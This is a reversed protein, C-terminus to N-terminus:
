HYECITQILDGAKELQEAEFARYQAPTFVEGQNLSLLESAPTRNHHTYAKFFREALELVLHSENEPAAKLALHYIKKGLESLETDTMAKIAATELMRPLHTRYPELLSIVQERAEANYLLHTLLIGPVACWVKSQADLFRVEFFGRARVEPFLTSLHTEWDEATPYWGNFGKEAWEKFRVFRGNFVLEGQVNPLRMCGANLAFDLYQNVSCPEYRDALFGPQFGTRSPDLRQWIISRFSHAGAARGAVFPSNAFVATMIPSLLNAALWRRRATEPDGTDLNVQLSTSLRMMQRGYPSLSGFYRDMNIYRPKDLQLGVEEVAYWPNLGSHFFWIDYKKLACRLTEMIDNLNAIAEALTGKPASSYELQGGPEFTLTGGDQFRFRLTNDDGPDFNLEQIREAERKLLDILGNQGDEFFRVLSNEKEATKRFPWVELELGIRDPGPEAKPFFIRYVREQLVDDNLSVHQLPM